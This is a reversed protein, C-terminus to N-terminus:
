TEKEEDDSRVDDSDMDSDCNGDSQQHYGVIDDNM